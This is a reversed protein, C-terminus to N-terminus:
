SAALETAQAIFDAWRAPDIVDAKQGEPVDFKGLLEVTVDRGKKLSLAVVAKRVEEYDPTSVSADSSSSLAPAREEINATRPDGGGGATEPEAKAKTKPPSVAKVAGLFPREPATELPPAQIQRNGMAAALNNIAEALDPCKIEVTINV